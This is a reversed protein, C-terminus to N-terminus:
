FLNEGALAGNWGHEDRALRSIKGALSEGLVAFASNSKFCIHTMSQFRHGDTALNEM